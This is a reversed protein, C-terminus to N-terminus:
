AERAAWEYPVVPLQTALKGGSADILTGTIYGALDSALFCLLQAIDAKEGWHRLTLTDLLREQEAVPRNAFGNIDTPIMGPAYANVTINWPGLEGALARSFQAVAAKTAAYAASGAAPVIAAFSAANLIRGARQRKMVPIVTRCCHFVGKVNVDFLRDWTELPFSEVQGGIDIGANNILVDIRGYAEVVEAMAREVGALDRVDVLKFEGPLADAPRADLGITVAGEAAFTELIARGIGRGAGTIVTVKKSVDIIM